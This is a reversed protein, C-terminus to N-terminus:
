LSRLPRILVKPAKYPGDTQRHVGLPVPTWAGQTGGRWPPCSFVWGIWQLWWWALSAWALSIHASSTRYWAQSPQCHHQRLNQLRINSGGGGGPCLRSSGSGSIPKPHNVTPPFCTSRVTPMRIQLPHGLYGGNTLTMGGCRGM